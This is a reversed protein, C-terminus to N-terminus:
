FTAEDDFTFEYGSIGCDLPTTTFAPFSYTYISGTATNKPITAANTLGIYAMVTQLPDASCGVILTYPGFYQM